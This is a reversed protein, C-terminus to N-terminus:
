LDGCSVYHALDAASMHVNVAYAGKKLDAVTVGSLTTVSKGDVVNNLPKWPSPNLKECTGMHIHAPQSGGSPENKLAITVKIGGTVDMITVTGTEKSGNQDGLKVNLSANTMANHVDNMTNSQSLAPATTAAIAAAALAFRTFNM